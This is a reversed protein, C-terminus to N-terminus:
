EKQENTEANGGNGGSNGGRANNLREAKQMRRVKSNYLLFAFAIILYIMVSLQWYFRIFMINLLLLVFGALLVWALIRRKM